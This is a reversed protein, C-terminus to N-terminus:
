IEEIYLSGYNFAANDWGTTTNRKVLLNFVENEALTIVWTISRQGVLSNQRYLYLSLGAVVNNIFPQVYVGGPSANPLYEAGSLVVRVTMARPATFGCDESTPGNTILSSVAESSGIFDTSGLNMDLDKFLSRTGSGTITTTQMAFLPDNALWFKNYTLQGTVTVDGTVAVDGTVSVDGPMTHATGDWTINGVNVDLDSLDSNIDSLLDDLTNTSPSASSRVESTLMYDWDYDGVILSNKQLIMGVKASSDDPVLNGSPGGATVSSGDWYLLGTAGFPGVDGLDLISSDALDFDGTGSGTTFGFETLEQISNFLQLQSLNLLDSTLRSGPQFSVVTEDINTSRRLTVYQASSISVSNPYYYKVNGTYVREVNALNNITVTSNSANVTYESTPVTYLFEKLDADSLSAVNVATGGSGQPNDRYVTTVRWRVQLQSADTLADVLTLMDYSFTTSGFTGEIYRKELVPQTDFQPM